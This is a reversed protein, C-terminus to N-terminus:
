NGRDLWLFVVLAVEIVKTILGMISNFADAGNFVFFLVITVATYLIFAWRVLNRMSDSLAPIFYLAALLVIYGAGNLLFLTDNFQFGLILHIVATALTLASIIYVRTNLHKTM